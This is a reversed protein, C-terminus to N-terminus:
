LFRKALIDCRADPVCVGMVWRACAFQSFQPRETRSFSATEATRSTEPKTFPIQIESTSGLVVSKIKKFIVDKSPKKFIVILLILVLTNRPISEVHNSFKNPYLRSYTHPNEGRLTAHWINRSSKDITPDSKRPIYSDIQSSDPPVVGAILQGSAGSHSRPLYYGLLCM